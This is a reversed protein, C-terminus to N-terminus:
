SLTYYYIREQPLMAASAGCVLLYQSLSSEAKNSETEHSFGNKWLLVTLDEVAAM